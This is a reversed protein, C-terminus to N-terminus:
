DSVLVIYIKKNTWQTVGIWCESKGQLINKKHWTSKMRWEHLMEELSINLSRNINERVEKQYWEEKARDLRSKNELDYHFLHDYEACYGSYKQAVTILTDNFQLNPLNYNKRIANIEILLHKRLINQWIDEGYTEIIKNMTMKKIINHDLSDINILLKKKTEDVKIPVESLPKQSQVDTQAALESNWLFWLMGTAAM